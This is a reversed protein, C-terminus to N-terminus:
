ATPARSETSATSTAGAPEIEDGRLQLLSASGTATVDFTITKEEAATPYGKVGATCMNM